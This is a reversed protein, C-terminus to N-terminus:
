HSAMRGVAKCYPHLTHMPLMIRAELTACLKRFADNLREAPIFRQVAQPLFGIATCAALAGEWGMRSTDENSAIGRGGAPLDATACRLTAGNLLLEHPPAAPLDVSTTKYVSPPTGLYISQSSGRCMQRRPIAASRKESVQIPNRGPVQREVVNFPEAKLLLVIHEFCQLSSFLM